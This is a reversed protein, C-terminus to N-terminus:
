GGGGVKNLENRFRQEDPALTVAHEFAEVIENKPRQLWSRVRGLDFWAWAHRTLPADMQLVRELYTSAEGLLRNRVQRDVPRRSKTRVLIGALNMKTQAFEHLARVDKLVLDGAREFLRHARDERGARREAIAAECADQAALLSPLKDLVRRAELEKRDDMLAGALATLARAYESLRERPIEDVLHRAAALDELSAYDRVLAVAVSPSHLGEAWARELLRRAGMADGTAQRYAYDRLIRLAVYEPHAPLTARFYTRQEDFDFTPDPSGNQTLSERIKPVGTGRGEALGLEKLFEGIRRNRAPFPPLPRDGLLNEKQIGMVPGPYSIIEIRNPYLYVKTPEVAEEYSRHYIANVLAERLAPLPYSIWGRTEPQNGQKELHRTTMSELWNLCQRLQHHIPGNFVKEELTNGGTDDSFEVIEIRAGRFWQLPNNSFFLLGINKPVTEGNARVTIQMNFYIRNADSEKTLDSRVDALFERVLSISLDDNTADFARRDDFPVRATQQLLMTRIGDKAEVTESGVRIWFRKQGHPGDPAQHPRNDSAPAWLVVVKQNDVQVTDFVPMYTPEIRNCNGRIWKQAQDVETEKLGKAPRVTVGEREAVGLVIYGGNLNQLDNAFACLTKLVQYGTTQSEWSAKFELRASEVAGSLVEEINIPLISHM